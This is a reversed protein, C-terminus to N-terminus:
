RHVTCEYESLKMSPVAGKGVTVFGDRDVYLLQRQFRASTRHHSFRPALMPAPFPGALLQATALLM